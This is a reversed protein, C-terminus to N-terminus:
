NYWYPTQATWPSRPYRSHLLDFARKSYKGTEQNGCGRRTTQVAFHLAEPVRPDDPHSRARAIVQAALYNAGSGAIDYLAKREAAAEAKQAPTLFDPEPLPSGSPDHPAASTFCWRGGGLTSTAIMDPATDGGQLYPTLWPGRMLILAATFRAEGADAAILFPKAATAYSPKLRVVREMLAQAQSNKGLLVSRIWGAEAIQLQLHAPLLRYNAADIWLSLPAMSNLLDISDTDFISRAGAVPLTTQEEVGDFSVMHPEPRRPAFRLFEDWNRALKTRQGRILNRTSLVLNHSLVDDAWARAQDKHGSLIEREIGYYVASEYAPSGPAIEHAARVLPAAQKEDSWRLAAVLWAPNGTKQWYSIPPEGPSWMAMTTMWRVLEDDGEPNESSDGHGLLYIFDEAVAGLDGAGDRQLLQNSLRKVHAHPDRRGRVLELMRRSPEHWDSRAVDRLIATLREEAADFAERSGDVLAERIFTRASLYPAIGAWPSSKDMAIEDFAQRAREWEGAYFLTAAIQYRRDAALLPDM